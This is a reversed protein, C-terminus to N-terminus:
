FMIKIGFVELCYCLNEIFFCGVSGNDYFVYIKFVKNNVKNM